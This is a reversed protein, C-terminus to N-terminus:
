RKVDKRRFGSYSKKKYVLKSGGSYNYKKSNYEKEVKKGRRSILSHWSSDNDLSRAVQTITTKGVRLVLTIDDIKMGSLLADAILIRRGIKLKEDTTLLGHIIKEVENGDQSSLFADRLKNFSEFVDKDTLFKYRRM